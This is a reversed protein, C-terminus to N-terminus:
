SWILGHENVRTVYAAARYITLCVDVASRTAVFGLFRTQNNV